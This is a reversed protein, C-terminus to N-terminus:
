LRGSAPLQTQTQSRPEEPWRQVRSRELVAFHGQVPSLEQTGPRTDAGVMATARLLREPTSAEAGM